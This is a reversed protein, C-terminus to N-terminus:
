QVLGHLSDCWGEQPNYLLVYVRRYSYYPTFAEESVEPCLVPGTRPPQHDELPSLSVGLFPVPGSRAYV